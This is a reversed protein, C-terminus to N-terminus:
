DHKPRKALQRNARDVSEKVAVELTAFLSDTKSESAKEAGLTEVALKHLRNRFQRRDLPVDHVTTRTAM